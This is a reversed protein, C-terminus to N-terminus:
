QRPRKLLWGYELPNKGKIRLCYRDDVELLAELLDLAKDLRKRAPAVGIIGLTYKADGTKKRMTFKDQDLLNAVVSTKEPTFACEKQGARCIYDSVYSIHDIADWNSESLYPLDKEQLHFRAVLKQHPKKNHSYWNLNGLCWECFIIDAQSLLKKSQNEDHKNHGTWKDILFIYKGSEELKKQLLSFFKLDHGAVLIIKKNFSRKEKLWQKMEEVRHSFTHEMALEKVTNAAKQCIEDNTLALKLKQIFEEKNNAYLPYDSGLLSVHLKNKNLIAACGASGYELIKTSYEVIGDLRKCRCSLGVKANQLQKYVDERSLAGLWELNPTNELADKMNKAFNKPLTDNHIKDGIMILKSDQIQTYMEGWAQAM